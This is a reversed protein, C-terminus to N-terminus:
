HYTRRNRHSVHECKSFEFMSSSRNNSVIEQFLEDGNSDVFVGPAFNANNTNMIELLIGNVLAEIIIRRQRQVELHVGAIATM